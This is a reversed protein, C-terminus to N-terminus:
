RLRGSRGALGDLTGRACAAIKAAKQDELLAIEALIKTAHIFEFAVWHPARLGHHAFLRIRNRFLYRLRLPPMFAPWWVRGLFRVPRKAGRRHLLQAAASVRVAHGASRARLCYDTDVLDLFLSEDFGGLERWTPLHFLSGSTIVCTVGALDRGTAAPRQFAGPIWRHARLHRAPADPRAEDRWNAGVVAASAGATALLARRFGPEPTSDQDFAIAWTFGRESLTSFARNLAAGLGVNERSTILKAGRARCAGDLREATAPEATNDVVILFNVESAIAALRREFEMDPHFTM